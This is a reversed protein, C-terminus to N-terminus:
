YGENGLRGSWGRETEDAITDLRRAIAEAMMNARDSSQLLNPDFAGAIAAQEVVFRAYRSHMDEILKVVVRAQEVIDRLDRGARV